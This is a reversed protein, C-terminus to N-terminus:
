LTERSQKWEDHTLRPVEFRDTTRVYVSSGHMRAVLGLADTRVRRTAPDYFPDAIHLHVVEGLVIRNNGLAVVQALRCELAVPSAAIRPPRVALSPVTAVGAAALEDEGSPFSVGTVNVAPALEETVLGVVFEGRAEINALTDKPGGSGSSKDRAAIGLAVIPPDSGLLNFFSFPAANVTDNENVTTVWAIPRPVVVSILLRYSEPPALARLDFEV